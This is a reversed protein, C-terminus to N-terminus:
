TQLAANAQQSLAVLREDSWGFGKPSGLGSLHPVTFVQGAPRLEAMLASAHKGHAIVVAPRIEELLMEFVATSRASQSLRAGSRAEACWINTELAPADILEALREIRKRTPSLPGKALYHQRWRVRDMGAEDSWFKWFNATDRAPNQGVIFVRCDLPSGSCVFPRGSSPDGIFSKMLAAFSALADGSGPQMM